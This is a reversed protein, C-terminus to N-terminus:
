DNRQEQRFNFLNIRWSNKREFILFDILLFFLSIALFYQFKSDYETFMGASIEKKEVKLLDKDLNKLAYDQNVLRYYKGNGKSAVQQLAQENLKSLVISGDADKKYDSQVGNVYVPIPAGTATGVGVTFVTIGDHTAKKAIEVADDEHNEGDSIILLVKFKKEGENFLQKSMEIAEGIATGQTPIMETNMNSLFLKAAAYDITLPMQIYAKGAFVVLGVRDNEMKAMFEYVFQKANELRNPKLDEALMSRSLDLAIVLDVGERKVKEMKSGFQLNALALVLFIAALSLIIFKLWLKPVSSFNILRKVLKLDGFKRISMKRWRLRWLFLLLFLVILLLFYLYDIHEFRVQAM